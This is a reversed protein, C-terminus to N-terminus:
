VLKYDLRAGNQLADDIGKGKDKDWEAIAVKFGAKKLLKITKREADLIPYFKRNNVINVNEYKDMDLALIINIKRNEKKSLLQINKVLNRYNAVGAEALSRYGLKESAIKMKLAGEGVLLIDKRKINSPEYYDIPSGSSANKSSFWFYRIPKGKDDLVPKSLRYQMGVFQGNINHYPIFYGRIDELKGTEPNKMKTKFTIYDDFKDNGNIKIFGAVRLLEEGYKEYLKRSIYTSLQIKYNSDGYVRHSSKPVSFFGMKRIEEDTLGRRLLDNRDEEYLGGDIKDCILARLDEYVRHRLDIVEHTIKKTKTSKIRKKITNNTQRNYSNYGGRKGNVYHKYWGPLNVMPDLSTEHKCAIFLLEHNLYFESCRGDKNGCIPCIDGSRIPVFMTGEDYQTIAM